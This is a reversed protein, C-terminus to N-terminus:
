ARGREGSRPRRGGLACLMSGAVVVLSALVAGPTLPAAQWYEPFYLALLQSGVLTTVPQVALVASVKSAEWHNLAEAFAGYAVLTNLALFILLMTEVEGIGLLRAPHSGPLMLLAGVLYIAMMIYQSRLYLLMKKQALGYIAWLLAALLMLMVGSGFIQASASSVRLREVCFLVIGAVLMVFGGWQWRGFHERFVLLSGMMLLVPALQVVIQAVPAGIYALSKVYLVYNGILACVAVVFLLLGMPGARPLRGLSGTAVFFALLFLGSSLFRFWSITIPDVHPLLPTMALPVAGWLVATTLALAFGIQWRGSVGQMM